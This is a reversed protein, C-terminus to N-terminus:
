DNFYYPTKVDWYLNYIHRNEKLSKVIEDLQEMKEPSLSPVCLDYFRNIVSREVQEKSPEENCNENAM